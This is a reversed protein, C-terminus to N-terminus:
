LSKQVANHFKLNWSMLAIEQSASSIDPELSSSREICKNLQNSKERFCHYSNVLTNVKTLWLLIFEADRLRWIEHDRLHLLIKVFGVQLTDSREM